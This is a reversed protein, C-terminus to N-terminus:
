NLFFVKFASCVVFSKLRKVKFHVEQFTFKLSKSPQFSFQSYQLVEISEQTVPDLDYRSAATIMGVVRLPLLRRKHLLLEPLEEEQLSRLNSRETECDCYFVNLNQVSLALVDEFRYCDISMSRLFATFGNM